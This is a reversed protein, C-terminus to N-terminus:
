FETSSRVYLVRKGKIAEHLFRGKRALIRYVVIVLLGKFSERMRSPISPDNDYGFHESGELVKNLDGVIIWQQNQFMHSDQHNCIDEWLGRREEVTNRAYM